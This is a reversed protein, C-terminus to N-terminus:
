FTKNSILDLDSISTIISENISKLDSMETLENLEDIEDDNDKKSDDKSDDKKDDKKDDKNMKTHPQEQIIDDRKLYIEFYYFIGFAIIILLVLSLYDSM